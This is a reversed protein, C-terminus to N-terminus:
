SDGGVGLVGVEGPRVLGTVLTAQSGVEFERQDCVWCVGDGFVIADEDFASTDCQSPQENNVGLTNQSLNRDVVQWHSPRDILYQPQDLSELKDYTEEKM